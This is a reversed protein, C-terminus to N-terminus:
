THSLISISPRAHKIERENERYSSTYQAALDREVTKGKRAWGSTKANLVRLAVAPQGPM